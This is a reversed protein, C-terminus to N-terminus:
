KKFDALHGMVKMGAKVLFKIDDFNRIALAKKVIFRPTLFAKYLSQTLEKVQETTLPCRMVQERQDFREYDEFNLLDNKKCYQYLPTGPYPIIITAQLSDVYGKRFLDKALNVTKQANEYSEWPYGIMATIHPELGAEKCFKLNPEIEEVRLGKNIQDLTGQNASELGFLILRFGARKMLKWTELDTIGNIRMNCSLKVKQNYGRDIMGHCFAKLWDGIPLSGSDEMIEKVGLKVLNHVEQLANDVSRQRFNKGPFLTTWSCNSVGVFNATYSHDKDVSLNYVVGQYDEKKLHAVPLYAYNGVIFGRKYLSKPSIKPKKESFLNIIDISSLTIINQAKTMKERIKSKRVSPIASCRFLLMVLQSSLRDSASSLIYEAQKGRRRYHADGRFMGRLLEIQKDRTAKMIFEPLNKNYCNDGFLNKFVKALVTNGITIQTTHNAKNQHINVKVQFNNKLIEAVDKIYSEEKQSFTFGLLLSNPRNNLKTVCGEALYYGFLRFVKKDLNIEAPIWSKGGEFSIKGDKQKLPNVKATLQGAKELILYRHVTERDIKLFASISRESKGRQNLDLIEEILSGKIKQWTDIVTPQLNLIKKLDLKVTKVNERNIPVALYDGKSIREAEVYQPKYNLYPKAFRCDACNLRKSFNNNSKCLYASCGMECCHLLQKQPLSLIQHNPTAYFSPICTAKIKILVGAYNRHLVNNVQKYNGLHTLVNEGKQIDKLHKSGAITLIQTEGTLCFSCRGWWCDRGSMMYAGPTYKFNGNKYAYLEWRTLERDIMPLEDLSHKHLDYKGSNKIQGDERYWIGGELLVNSDKRLYQCLSLLIFDYDGGQIVYDVQSNLLSEEPLATVHDGLLVIKLDWDGMQLAQEKLENIIRWHRKVVPTKTEIVIVAPRAQVIREKWGTYSLEEAIGDDWFVDFGRRKLLTAASGPLMPYIYTPSNFWQFQRNQTLLPTGKPSELPPYSISIKM